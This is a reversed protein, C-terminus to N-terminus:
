KGPTLQASVERVIAARREDTEAVIWQWLATEEIGKLQAEHRARVGVLAGHLGEDQELTMGLDLAVGVLDSWNRDQWASSARRYLKGYAGDSGVKDPHTLVAIARWLKRLAEPPRAELPGGEADDETGQPGGPGREPPGALVPVLGAEGAENAPTEPEGVERRVLALFESSRAQVVDKRDDIELALHRIRYLLAQWAKPRLPTM